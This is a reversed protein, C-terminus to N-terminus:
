AAGWILSVDAGISSGLINLLFIDRSKHCNFRYNIYKNYYFGSKQNNTNKEVGLVGNIAYTEM